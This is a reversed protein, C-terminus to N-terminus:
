ASEKDPTSVRRRSKERARESEEREREELANRAKSWDYGPPTREFFDEGWQERPEDFAYKAGGPDWQRNKRLWTRFAADWDVKAEGKSLWHDRFDGAQMEVDAARMLVAKCCRAWRAMAPAPEWDHPIPAPRKKKPKPPPEPDPSTLSFPTEEGKREEQRSEEGRSEELHRNEADRSADGGGAVGRSSQDRERKARMRPASKSEANREAWAPITVTKRGNREGFVITGPALDNLLKISRRAERADGGLIRVLGSVHDKSGAPLELVGGTPRAEHSLELLVFRVVRPVGSWFGRRIAGHFKIWDQHKMEGAWPRM